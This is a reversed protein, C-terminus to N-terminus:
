CKNNTQNYTSKSSLHEKIILKTSRKGRRRPAPIKRIVRKPTEFKAHLFRNNNGKKKKKM